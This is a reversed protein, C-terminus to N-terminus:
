KKKKVTTKRRGYKLKFQQIYENVARVENITVLSTALAFDAKTTKSYAM